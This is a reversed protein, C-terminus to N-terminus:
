GDVPGEILKEQRPQATLMLAKVMVENGRVTENRFSEIAATQGTNTRAMEVSLITQWAIACGWEDYDKGSQPDKGVLKQFWNCRHIKGDKIEECVHGLPCTM